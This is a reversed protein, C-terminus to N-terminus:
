TTRARVYADVARDLAEDKLELEADNYPNDPYLEAYLESAICSAAAQLLERRVDGETM